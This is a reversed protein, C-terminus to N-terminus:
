KASHKRPNHSSENTKRAVYCDNRKKKKKHSERSDRSAAMSWFIENIGRSERERERQRERESRQKTYRYRYKHNREM